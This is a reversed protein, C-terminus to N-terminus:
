LLSVHKTESTISGRFYRLTPIEHYQASVFRLCLVDMSWTLAHAELIVFVDLDPIYNHYEAIHHMELGVRGQVTSLLEKYSM